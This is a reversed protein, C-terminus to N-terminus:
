LLARFDTFYQINLSFLAPTQRAKWAQQGIEKLCIRPCIQVNTYVQAGVNCVSVDPFGVSTIERGRSLEAPCTRHLSGSRDQQFTPEALLSGAPPTAFCYNVGPKICNCRQQWSCHSLLLHQRPSGPIVDDSRLPESCLVRRSGLRQDLPLPCRRLRESLISHHAFM